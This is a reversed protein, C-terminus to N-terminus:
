RRRANQAKELEVRFRRFLENPSLNEEARGEEKMQKSEGTRNELLEQVRSLTVSMTTVKNVVEGACLCLYTLAGIILPPVLLATVLEM